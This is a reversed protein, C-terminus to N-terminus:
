EPELMAIDLNNVSQIQAVDVSDISFNFEPETTAEGPNALIETNVQAKGEFLEDIALQAKDNDTTALMITYNGITFIRANRILPLDVSNYFELDPGDQRSRRAQLYEGAQPLNASEKVKLVDVEFAYWGKPVYFAYDSLLDMVPDADMKGTILWGSREPEFYEPADKSAGLYYRTMPSLEQGEFVSMIADAIEKASLDPLEVSTTPTDSSGPQSSEVPQGNSLKMCGSLVFLVTLVLLLAVSRIRIM